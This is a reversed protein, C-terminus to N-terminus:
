LKTVNIVGTPCQISAELNDEYEDDSIVLSYIERNEEADVLLSKGDEEDIDWRYPAVENCYYCGICKTRQFTIRIM